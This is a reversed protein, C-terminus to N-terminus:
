AARRRHPTRQRRVVLAVRRGGAHNAGRISILYDVIADVDKPEIPAKYDPRADAVAPFSYIEKTKTLGFVSPPWYFTTMGAM